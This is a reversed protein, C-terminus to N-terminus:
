LIDHDGPQVVRITKPTRLPVAEIILLHFSLIKCPTVSSFPNDDKKMSLCDLKLFPRDFIRSHAPNEWCGAKPTFKGHNTKENESVKEPIGTKNKEDIM